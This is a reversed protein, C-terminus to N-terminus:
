HQKLAKIGKFDDSKIVIDDVYVVLYIYKNSSFKTFVSHVLECQNM